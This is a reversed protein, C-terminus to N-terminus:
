FKGVLFFNCFIKTRVKIGDKTTSFCQAVRAAFRPIVKEQSFDGLTKWIIDASCTESSAFMWCSNEKLQSM